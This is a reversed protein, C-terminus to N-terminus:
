ELGVRKRAAITAERILRCANAAGKIGELTIRSYSRDSVGLTIEGGDWLRQMFSQTFTIDQIETLEIRDTISTLLGARIKLRRNTLEFRLSARLFHQRIGLALGCAVVGALPVWSLVSGNGLYAVYLSLALGVGVACWYGLLAMASYSASWLLEEELHDEAIARPGDESTREESRGHPPKAPPITGEPRLSKGFVALLRTQFEERPARFDIWQIQGLGIHIADSDCDETVVPVVRIEPRNMAWRTETKVWTSDVSNPTLVVIFSRCDKLAGAIKDHWQEAGAIDHRAYWTDIGHRELLQIIEREVLARDKSSHSVFVKPGIASPDPATM